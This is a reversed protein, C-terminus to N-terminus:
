QGANYIVDTEGVGKDISLKYKGGHKTFDEAPNTLCFTIDGVGGDADIDGNMTGTFEFDGVGMDLDMGGAVADRITIDGAGGDIDLLGSCDIGTFHLDGAGCDIEAKSCEIGSFNVDGAGCNVDLFSCNVSAIKADGAGMDLVFRDYENDPLMLKVVPKYNMPHFVLGFPIARNKKSDYGMTFRSGSVKAEFHESVDTADVHISDDSSKEIIFDGWDLDLELETVNAGDFVENYDKVKYYKDKDSNIYMIYGTILLILGLAIAIVAAWLAGSGKKKNVPASQQEQVNINNEPM